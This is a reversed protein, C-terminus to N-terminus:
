SLPPVTPLTLDLAQLYEVKWSLREEGWNTPAKKGGEAQLRASPILLMENTVLANGTDDTPIFGQLASLVLNRLPLHGGTGATDTGGYLWARSTGAEDLALRTRLTVELTEEIRTTYVGGGGQWPQTPTFGKLRLLLDQDAQLHPAEDGLWPLVREPPFGTVAQLRAEIVPLIEAMSSRIQDVM